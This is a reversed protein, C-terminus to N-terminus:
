AKKSAARRPSFPLGGGDTACKMAANSATAVSIHVHSFSKVTLYNYNHKVLKAPM